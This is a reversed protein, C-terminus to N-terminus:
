LVAVKIWNTCGIGAPWEKKMKKFGLWYEPYFVRSKKENLYAGWWAFTSNSLILIDAQMLLQLDFIESNNESYIAGPLQFNEKVFAIDDSIFIINKDAVDVSDLANKYYQYPLSLGYGLEDSGWNIYDTRRIHIVINEKENKTFNRIDIRFKERITFQRKIEDKVNEFFQESQFFGDILINNKTFLTINQSPPLSQDQTIVKPHFKNLLLFIGKQLYHFFYNQKPVNFYQGIRIRYIKHLYYGKHVRKKQALAFAYQFLQNGLRGQIKIGFM